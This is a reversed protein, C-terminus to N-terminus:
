DFAFQGRWQGPAACLGIDFTVWADGRADQVLDGAAGWVGLWAGEATMRPRAMRFGLFSNTMGAQM